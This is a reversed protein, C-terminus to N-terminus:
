GAVIDVLDELGAFDDMTRSARFNGSTLKQPTGKRAPKQRHDNGSHNV